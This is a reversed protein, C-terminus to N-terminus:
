RNTPVGKLAQLCANKPPHVSRGTFCILARSSLLGRLSLRANRGNTPAQPIEGRGNGARGHSCGMGPFVRGFADRNLSGRLKWSRLTTIEFVSLATRLASPGFCVLGSRLAVSTQTIRLIFPRPSFARSISARGTPAGFVVLTPRKTGNSQDIQFM